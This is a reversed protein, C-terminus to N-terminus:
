EEIAPAGATKLASELQPLTQQVVKNLQGTVTKLQNKARNFASKQNGTPGYTNRLAVLGVFSGDGPAPPNREGIENKAANGNMIEEIRNLEVEADSLQKYLTATPNTAQVFAAKMASLRKQANRLSTGALM